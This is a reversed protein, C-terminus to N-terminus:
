ALSGAKLELVSNGLNYDVNNVLVIGEEWYGELATLLPRNTATPSLTLLYTRAAAFTAFPMYPAVAAIADNGDKSVYIFNAGFGPVIQSIAAKWSTDPVGLKVLHLQLTRAIDANAIQTRDPLTAM